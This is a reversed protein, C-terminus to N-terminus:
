LSSAKQRIRRLARPAKDEVSRLVHLTVGPHEGEGRAGLARLALQTFKRAEAAVGDFYALAEDLRVNGPTYAADALGLEQRLRSEISQIDTWYVANADSFVQALMPRGIASELALCLRPIVEVGVMGREREIVGVLTEGLGARSALERQSLNAYLRWRRLVRGIYISSIKRLPRKSTASM